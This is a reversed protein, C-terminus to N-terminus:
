NAIAMTSPIEGAWGLKILGKLLSKIRKERDFTNLYNAGLDQFPVRNKIIYYIAIIMSHAVAVYAKKSGRRGKIRVFRAYFYSNKKMIASHACTIITTKALTNGQRSGNKKRKKASTNDAPCLGLWAALKEPSQFKDMDIGIVAIIIQAAVEAIGYVTQLLKSVEHEEPTMTRKIEETLEDIAATQADILQLIIRVEAKQVSTFGGQLDEIIQKKSAKLQKSIKKEKLLKDYLSEDIKIGQLLLGLFTRGSMGVVNTITGSLKINAGEMIKQLRNILRTREQTCSKRLMCMERLERQRKSPIFSPKLLGNMLLDGIWDADKVDTKHGPINHMHYPNVVMIPLKREEFVNFVPKWYSGTSEIACMECGGEILWDALLNLQLNNTGFERIEKKGGHRFCAVILKQHVDLGCCSDYIKDM